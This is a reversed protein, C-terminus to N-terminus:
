FCSSAPVAPVERPMQQGEPRAQGLGLHQVEGQEPASHLMEQSGSM